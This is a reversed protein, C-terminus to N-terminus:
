CLFNHSKQHKPNYQNSWSDTPIQWYSLNETPSLSIRTMLLTLRAIRRKNNKRNSIYPTCNKVHILDEKKLKEFTSLCVHFFGNGHFTFAKYKIADWNHWNYPLPISKGMLSSQSIPKKAVSVFLLRYLLKRVWACRSYKLIEWLCNSLM